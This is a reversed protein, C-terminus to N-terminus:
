PLQHQLPDPGAAHVQHAARRPQIAVVRHDGPAVAAFLRPQAGPADDDGGSRLREAGGAPSPPAGEGRRRPCPSGPSRAPGAPPSSGRRAGPGRANTRGSAVDTSPRRNRRGPRGARGAGAPRRSRSAPPHRGTAAQALDEGELKVLEAGFEHQGRLRAAGRLGPRLDRDLERASFRCGGCTGTRNARPSPVISSPFEAGKWSASARAAVPGLHVGPEPAARAAVRVGSAQALPARRQRARDHM